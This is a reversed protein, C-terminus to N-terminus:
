GRMCEHLSNRIEDVTAVKCDKLSPYRHESYKLQTVDFEYKNIELVNHMKTILLLDSCPARNVVEKLTYEGNLYRNVLRFTVPFLVLHGTGELSCQMHLIQSEDTYLSLITGNNYLLDPVRNIKAFVQKTSITGSLTM